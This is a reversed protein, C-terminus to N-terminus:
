VIIDFLIGLFLQVINKIKIINDKRKKKFIPNSIITKADKDTLSNWLHTTWM